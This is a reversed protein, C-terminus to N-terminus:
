FIKMDVFASPKNYSAIQKLTQLRKRNATIKYQKLM